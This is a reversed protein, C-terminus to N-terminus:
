RKVIEARHAGIIRATVEMPAPTVAATGSQRLWSTKGRLAPGTLSNLTLACLLSNTEHSIPPPLVPNWCERASVRHSERQNAERNRKTRGSLRRPGERCAGHSHMSNANAKPPTRVNYRKSARKTKPVASGLRVRRRASNATIRTSLQERTRKRKLCWAM